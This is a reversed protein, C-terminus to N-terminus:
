FPKVWRLMLVVLGVNEKEMFCVTAQKLPDSIEVTIGLFKIIEMAGALDVYFNDGSEGQVRVDMTLMLVGGPKLVRMCEEIGKLRDTAVHEIVSVLLVRDFVADSFSMARVDGVFFGMDEEPCLDPRQKFVADAADAATKVFDVNADLVTVQRCRKAVAFKLVSWGSGVDLVSHHKEFGANNLVWPWEIQRSWHLPSPQMPAKWITGDWDPVLPCSAPCLMDLSLLERLTSVYEVPCRQAIQVFSKM